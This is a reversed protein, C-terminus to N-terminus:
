KGQHLLTKTIAMFCAHLCSAGPHFRPQTQLSFFCHGFSHFSPHLELLSGYGNLLKLLMVIDIHVDKTSAFFPSFFRCSGGRAGTRSRLEKEVGVQLWKKESVREQRGM